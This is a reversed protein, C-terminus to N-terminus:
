RIKEWLERLRWAEMTDKMKLPDGVTIAEVYGAPVSRELHGTRWLFPASPVFTRESLFRDTLGCTDILHVTPGSAIGPHGLYGCLVGVESPDTFTGDNTPWNNASRNLERLPRGLPTAEALPVFYPDTFGASLTDVMQKLGNGDSIYFGREDVVFANVEPGFRWRVEQPNTLSTLRIESANTLVVMLIVFGGAIALNARREWDPSSTNPTYLRLPSIGLVFIAAFFPVAVFRGAMFDGGIWIVYGVYLAAGLGWARLVRPGLLIGAGIGAILGMLTIPDNEFTVWLYRTGQIVLEMRPIASNTKANFTNPLLAQYTSFSWAGWILIPCVFALTTLSLVRVNKRFTWLWLTFPIVILVLLDLRTLAAAASALGFSVARFQLSRGDVQVLKRSSLAILVAVVCYSLPTELGSTTFDVFANSLLLFGSVIVVRAPSQVRWVLIGVATAVLVASIILIGIIWQNSWSGILTWLLFWLPHTYGQVAETANFGPGWNHTLNLATRLTILADDGIWAVRIVVLVTLLVALIRCLQLLTLKVSKDDCCPM